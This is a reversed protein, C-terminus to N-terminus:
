KLKALPFSLVFKTGQNLNSEVAIELKLLDCLRKVISLGLGTGKIEPHNSVDSRYFSNFIKNLDQESIGIGNDSVTFIIETSTKELQLVIEGNDYSYKIANSILNSFIISVLYNDSQIYYDDTFDAKIKLKKSETKDSFRTLNDLILANLYISEQKVNQKQNEFRAM